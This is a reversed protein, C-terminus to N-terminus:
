PSSLTKTLIETYKHYLPSCHTSLSGGMSSTKYFFFLLDFFSLPSFYLQFIETFCLFCQVHSYDTTILKYISHTKTRKQISSSQTTNFM